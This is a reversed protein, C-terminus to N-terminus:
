LSFAWSRPAPTSAPRRCIRRRSGAGASRRRRCGHRALDVSRTWLAAARALDGAAQAQRAEAEVTLRQRDLHMRREFTEFEDDVSM